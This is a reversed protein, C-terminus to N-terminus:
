WQTPKFGLWFLQCVNGWLEPLHTQLCFVRELASSGASSSRSRLFLNELMRCWNLNSSLAASHENMFNNIM